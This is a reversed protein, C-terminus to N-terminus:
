PKKDKKIRTPKKLRDLYKRYLDETIDSMDRHELIARIKIQEILEQDVSLTLKRRPM